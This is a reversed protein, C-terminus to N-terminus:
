SELVSTVTDILQSYVYPKPVVGKFGYDAYHAMVPDDTYGSSVVAKANPDLQLIQKITEKGGGGGPVTLDLILLDFPQGSLQSQRFLELAKKGNEATVVTCDITALMGSVIALVMEDDDMMLVRIKRKGSIHTARKEPRSEKLMATVHSAPLYLDFTTGRGPESSVYIVGNHKSIISYATALGLGRGTQKTSFYPDFIRNLHEPPIGEGEDRVKVHIYNGAELDPLQEDSNDFNQLHINFHGGNPMAQKANIALNSFVQQIQGKDVNAPLLGDSFNFVCKVNSGSLDFSVVEKVLEVLSVHERVPEGGKAFTLLKGTLRTARNLSKEAKDLFEFAQHQPELYIKALSVNGFLGTLINNFDHAIGGALTGISELKHITQQDREAQKRSRIDRLVSVRILEGGYQVTRGQVEVPIETGDKHRALTEYPHMDNTRLRELIREHEAPVIWETAHKGKAENLTYGFLKEANANQGFVVGDRSLYIAEFSAEALARQQTESDRLSQEMKKRRSIDRMFSHYTGDPMMKSNMEIPVTTGDKRTLLRELQVVKGQKLLDYRLPTKQQEEKSFLQAINLSLLEEHCYGTLEVACRNAGIINGAPDGNFIADVAFEILNRYREHESQLQELATQRQRVAEKLQLNQRHIRDLQRFLEATSIESTM